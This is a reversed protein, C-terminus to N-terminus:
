SSAARPFVFTRMFLFTAVVAIADSALKAPIAPANFVFIFLWLLLSVLVINSVLMAVYAIASNAPSKDKAGPFSFRAHFFFAFTAAATKSIVNSIVPFGVHLVSILLCFIGIDLGYGIAQGLM